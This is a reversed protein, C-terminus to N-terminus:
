SINAPHDKLVLSLNKDVKTITVDELDCKKCLYNRIIQLDENKVEDQIQLTMHWAAPQTTVVIKIIKAKKLSNKCDINLPLSEALEALAQNSNPIICYKEM